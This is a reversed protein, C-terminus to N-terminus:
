KQFIKKVGQKLINVNCEFSNRNKEFTDKNVIYILAMNHFVYYFLIISKSDPIGNKLNKIELEYEMDEDFNDDDSDIMKDENEDYIHAMEVVFDIMNVCLEFMIETNKKLYIFKALCFKNNIDFIYANEVGCKKSFKELLFSLNTNQPIMNQLIASFAEILTTDFISTIFFNNKFKDSEYNSYIQQWIQSKIQKAEDNYQSQLISNTNYNDIKHLFIYLSISKYNNLIPLVNKNFYEIQQERPLKYDMIFVLANCKSLYQEYEQINNEFYFSSPFEIISLKCYGFSYLQCQYEKNVQKNLEIEYPPIKDFIVKKISTKGSLSGLFIIQFM